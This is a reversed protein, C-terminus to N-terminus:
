AYAHLGGMFYNVGLWTILVSIFAVLAYIHFVKPNNFARLGGLPVSYVLLTILAWTEKPDWSWYSGWSLNAWVSGVAIGFALMFVAPYLAATSVKMLREGSSASILGLIANIFVLAFVTYSIIVSGVHIWLLPSRLVPLLPQFLLKRCILLFLGALLVIGIIWYYSPIATRFHKLVLGLMATLLIVYGIYVTGTGWPDHNMSLISGQLDPDYDAQFFRYGKWKLIHNMSITRSEGAPLVTVLSVYDMPMDTGPYYEVRFDDLRLSFPLNSTTGNARVFGATESQKRLHVRGSDGIICTIVAGIIILAVGALLLKKMM